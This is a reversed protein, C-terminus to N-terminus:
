PFRNTLIGALKHTTPVWKMHAVSNKVLDKIMQLGIMTQREQSISFTKQLHGPSKADAVMIGPVELRSRWDPGGQPKGKLVAEVLLLVYLQRCVANALAESGAALTSGIVQYIVTCNTACIQSGKRSYVCTVRRYAHSLTNAQSGSRRFIIAKLAEM